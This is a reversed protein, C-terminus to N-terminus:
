KVKTARLSGGGSGNLMVSGPADASGLWFHARAFRPVRFAAFDTQGGPLMRTAPLQDFPRMMMMEGAEWAFQVLQSGREGVVRVFVSDGPGSRGSGMIEVRQFEGIRERWRTWVAGQNQRIREIPRDGGMAKRVTEFDGIAGAEVISRTRSEAESPVSRPLDLFNLVRFSEPDDSAILLADGDVSVDITAGSPFRYTGALRALAEPPLTTVSPPMVFPQGFIVADLVQTVDTATVEANSMAILVTKEDIYRRFDAAFVGNGGNHAVLKTQRPTTFVAWGYAYFSRARPGEAVYPKTYKERATASLVASRDLALHWKYLDGVTSHLGGNAKLYWGPGDERWGKEPMTGWDRGEMYGHALRDANWSPLVYGTDLMGAPKLINERLYQEYRQESVREVIAGLLSYGENSYEFRAGPASVLPTTLVLKVLEDRSIPDSDRGGYDARLGGTHTLLQHITIAAKDPPVDPLYKAIPDEVHLRGQVELKLIAAATFMKTISGITSVTDAAYPVHKERNALGYGKELAVKGDQAVLVAGSFGFPVLRSVYEDVRVGLPGVAAAPPAPQQAFM